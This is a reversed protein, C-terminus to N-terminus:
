YSGFKRKLRVRVLEAATNVVSTLILLLLGALFLLRYLTGRYPAEPMEVAINASLTRMGNFVSWDLIPTNGTAMLVIMTEGVARGFGIMIASFIGSGAAPLVIRVATQWRSAGCAVSGAILSRPVATLSDEVITFIIPVVAFGMAFGAVICNRQDYRTGSTELLWTRFSGDFLAREVVPGLAGALWATLAVAPVLAVLESGLPLSGRIRAPLTQWLTGLLAPVTPLLLLFALTGPVIAELRPALFVGALFGLVVSPLAAMLEVAPKVIQRVRDAMFQSTYIAGMLAIPVAFLLAYFTGKVTGFLLPVFSFKGEFDDSGGTSQWVYGPRDYGEYWTKGFLARPSIEPHPIDVGYHVAAFGSATERTGHVAILGDSKPTFALLRVPEREGPREASPDLTALTRGTTHHFVAARGSADGVAFSKSRPSAAISTIAAPFPPLERIRRFPRFRNGLGQERVGFWTSVSGDAGGAVLTV